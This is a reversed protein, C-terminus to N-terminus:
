GRLRWRQRRPPTQAVADPPRLDRRTRAYLRSTDGADPLTGAFIDTYFIYGVMTEAQFWDPSLNRQLDRIKLPEPRALYFDLMSQGLHDLTAQFDPRSGYLRALPEYFDAFYRELRLLFIDCDRKQTAGYATQLRQSLQEKLRALVARGEGDVNSM